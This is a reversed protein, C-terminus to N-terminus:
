GFYKQMLAKYMTEAKELSEKLVSKSKDIQEVHAAFENQLSLPVDYVMMEKLGSITLAAYATGTSMKQKYNLILSELLCKMYLSNFTISSAIRLLNGDKFYFDQRDNVIWIVGITGVASVLLDGKNPVGYCRKIDNFRDRSIFLETTISNGKSLEVIEKTRYFPIGNTVYEKEFIRKSSGIDCLSGLSTTHWNMKNTIPDGFMEVFLSKVLEDLKEIQKKRLSIIESAKDLVSVIEQQVKLPPLPVTIQSLTAKNLTAGMVAKNTGVSWDYSSFLHFLYGNDIQRKGNPLFSMIAENTYIDSSTICTKGISLKFSMIVTNKPILRIGSEKVALDSIQEKTESIYRDSKSLDSISVWKNTGNSWYSPNHRDPTKGMQLTFVDGLRVMEWKSM